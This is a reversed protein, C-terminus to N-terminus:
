LMAETLYKEHSLCIAPVENPQEKMFIAWPGEIERSITIDERIEKFKEQLYKKRIDAMFLLKKRHIDAM